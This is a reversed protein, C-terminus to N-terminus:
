VRQRGLHRLRARARGAILSLSNRYVRDTQNRCLWFRFSPQQLEIELVGRNLYSGRSSALTPSRTALFRIFWPLLFIGYVAPDCLNKLHRLVQLVVVVGMDCIPQTNHGQRAVREQHLVHWLRANAM